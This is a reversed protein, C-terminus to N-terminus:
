QLGEILGDALAVSALSELRQDAVEIPAAVGGRGPAKAVVEVREDHM